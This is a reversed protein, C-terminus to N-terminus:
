ICSALVGSYHGVMIHTARSENEHDQASFEFTTQVSSEESVLALAQARSDCAPSAAIATECAPPSSHLRTLTNTWENMLRDVDINNKALFEQVEATDTFLTPVTPSPTLTSIDDALHEGAEITTAGQKSPTTEAGKKKKEKAELLIKLAPHGECLGLKGQFGYEEEVNETVQFMMKPINNKSPNACQSPKENKSYIAEKHARKGTNRIREVIQGKKRVLIKTVSGGKSSNKPAKGDSETSDMKWGLMKLFGCEGNIAWQNNSEWLKDVSFSIIERM